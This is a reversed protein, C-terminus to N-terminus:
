MRGIISSVGGGEIFPFYMRMLYAAWVKGVRRGHEGKEDIQRLIYLIRVPTKEFVLYALM